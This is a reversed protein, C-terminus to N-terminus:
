FANMIVFISSLARLSPVPCLERRMPKASGAAPLVPVVLSQVFPQNMPKVVSSATPTHVPNSSFRVMPRPMYPPLTDSGLIDCLLHAALIGFVLMGVQLGQGQRVLSFIWGTFLSVAIIFLLSHTGIQHYQNPNGNIWGFVIDLDPLNSIVLLGLISKWNTWQFPQRSQHVVIAGALSHGIPTCM